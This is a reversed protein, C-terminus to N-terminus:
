ERAHVFTTQLRPLTANIEHLDQATDIEFNAALVDQLDALAIHKDGRVFQVVRTLNTASSGYRGNVEQTLEKGGIFRLVNTFCVQIQLIEVPRHKLEDRKRVDYKRPTLKLTWGASGRSVSV